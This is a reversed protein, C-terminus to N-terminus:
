VLILAGMDVTYLRAYLELIMARSPRDLIPTPEIAHPLNNSILLPTM